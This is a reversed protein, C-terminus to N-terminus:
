SPDKYSLLLPDLAANACFAYTARLAYLVETIAETAARFSRLFHQKQVPDVHAM